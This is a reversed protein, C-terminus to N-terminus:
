GYIVKWIKNVVKKIPKSNDVNVINFYELREARKYYERVEEIGAEKKRKWIVEPPAVILFSKSIKPTFHKFFNFTGKSGLILGDYFFRDFLIIEKNRKARKKAKLYRLWFESYQGLVWLFSRQRYNQKRLEEEVGGAKGYRIKSTVKMVQRLLPLNFESGLGMYMVNVKQKGEKEIKKKIEEILTSKGSGDIGIFALTQIKKKTKM